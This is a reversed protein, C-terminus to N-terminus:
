LDGRGDVFKEFGAPGLARYIAFDMAVLILVVWALSISTLIIITLFTSM